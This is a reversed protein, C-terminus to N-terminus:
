LQHNSDAAGILNQMTAIASLIEARSNTTHQGGNADLRWSVNSAGDVKMTFTSITDVQETRTEVDTEEVAQEIAETVQEETADEPLESLDIDRGFKDLNAITRMAQDGAEDCKTNFAAIVRPDLSGCRRVKHFYSKGWGFVKKSFDETTWSLGQEDFALKGEDSNFWQYANVVHVSLAMSHEFKRKQANDVNRQGRRIDTLNLATKVQPINLFDREMQNLTSM